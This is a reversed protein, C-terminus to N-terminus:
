VVHNKKAEELAALVMETQKEFSITHGLIEGSAEKLIEYVKKDIEAMKKIKYEEILKNAQEYSSETKEALNKQASVTETELAKKFDEIESKADSEISKSINQLVQKYSDLQLQSVKQLEEGLDGKDASAQLKANELIGLAKNKAEEVLSIAKHRARAEFLDKEAKYAALKRSQKEYAAITVALAACLLFVAVLEFDLAPM